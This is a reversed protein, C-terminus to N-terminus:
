GSVIQLTLAIDSAGLVPPFDFRPNADMSRALCRSIARL